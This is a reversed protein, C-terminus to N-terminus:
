REGVKIYMAYGKLGEKKSFIMHTENEDIIEVDGAEIGYEVNNKIIVGKGQTFIAIEKFSEHAERKTKEFSGLEVGFLILNDDEFLKKIKM